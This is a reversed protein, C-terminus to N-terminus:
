LDQKKLMGLGEVVGRVTDELNEKPLGLKENWLGPERMSYQNIGNLKEGGYICALISEVAGPAYPAEATTEYARYAELGGMADMQERAKRSLDLSDIPTRQMSRGTYKEILAIVENQTTTFSNVYVYQGATDNFAQESALCAIVARAIQGVNTAEYKTDGGDIVNVSMNQIDFGMVNPLALAWDVFAGVIIASWTFRGNTGSSVQGLYEVNEQKLFATPLHKVLLERNSTDVGYESPFFRRVTGSAVSADIIRQQDKTNFTAITSILAQINHARLITTLTDTDTYSDIPLVQLNPSSPFQALTRTYSSTRTLVTIRFPSSPNTTNHAQCAHVIERGINGSAGLIMINQTPLSSMPTTISAMEHNTNLRIPESSLAPAISLTAALTARSHHNSEIQLCLRAKHVVKYRM